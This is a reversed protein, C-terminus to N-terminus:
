RGQNPRWVGLRNGAPDLLHAFQIRGNDTLPLVVSGGLSEADRVAAAVDEVQVYFVAWHAGGIGTSDWLGGADGNVMQYAAPSQDGFQWGFLGGYFARAAAVDPTGIEFYNVTATM